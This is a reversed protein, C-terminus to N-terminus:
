VLPLISSVGKRLGEQMATTVASVQGDMLSFVDCVMSAETGEESAQLPPRSSDVVLMAQVVWATGNSAPKNGAAQMALGLCHRRAQMCM